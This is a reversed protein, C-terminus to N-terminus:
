SGEFNVIFYTFEEAYIIHFLDDNRFARKNHVKMFKVFKM